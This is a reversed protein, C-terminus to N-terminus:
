FKQNCRQLIEVEVMSSWREHLDTSSSTNVCANGAAVYNLMAQNGEEDRQEGTLPGSQYTGAESLNRRFYINTLEGATSHTPNGWGIGYSYGFGAVVNGEVWVNKIPAIDTVVRIGVTQTLGYGEIRNYLIKINGGSVVAIGDYHHGSAGNVFGGIWNHELISAVAENDIQKHTGRWDIGDATDLDASSARGTAPDITNALVVNRRALLRVGDFSPYIGFKGGSIESDEVIVTSQSGDRATGPAANQFYLAGAHRSWHGARIRTRKISVNAAAIRLNSGDPFDYGVIEAGEKVVEYTDGSQRLVGRDILPQVDTALDRYTLHRGLAPEFYGLIGVDTWKAPAVAPKSGEALPHTSSRREEGIPISSVPGPKDGNTPRAGFVVISTISLSAAATAAIITRSKIAKRM